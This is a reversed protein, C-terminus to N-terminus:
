CFIPIVLLTLTAYTKTPSVVCDTTKDDLMAIFTDQDFLGGGTTSSDVWFDCWVSLFIKNGRELHLTAYNRLGKRASGRM